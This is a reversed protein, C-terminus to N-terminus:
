PKPVGRMTKVDTPRELFQAESTIVQSIADRVRWHKFELSSRLLRPGVLAIMSGRVNSGSSEIELVGKLIRSFHEWFRPGRVETDGDYRYPPAGAFGTDCLILRLRVRPTALLALGFENFLRFLLSQASAGSFFVHKADNTSNVDGNWAHIETDNRRGVHVLNQLLRNILGRFAAVEAAYLDVDEGRRGTKAATSDQIDYWFLYSYDRRGSLGARRAIVQEGADLVAPIRAVIDDLLDRSYELARDFNPAPDTRELNTGIRGVSTPAELGCSEMALNFSQLKSFGKRAPASMIKTPKDVRVEAMAIEALMLAAAGEWILSGCADILPSVERREDVLSRSTAVSQWNSRWRNALMKAPIDGMASFRQAVDEVLMAHEGMKFAHYKMRGSNVAEYASSRVLLRARQRLRGAPGRISAVLLGRVNDRYEDHLIQLEAELAALADRPPEVSALLILERDTLAPTTGDARSLLGIMQGLEEAQQPADAVVFSGDVPAGLKFPGKLGRRQLVGRRQLYHVLWEESGSRRRPGTHIKPVAGKLDFQIEVVNSVSEEGHLVELFGRSAGFRILLVLLKELTLHPITEREAADLYGKVAYYALDIEGDTFKVDEGHRYARFVANGESCIIPVAIGHDNCVDLILSLIRAVDERPVRGLAHRTTLFLELARFTIGRNLRDDEAVLPAGSGDRAALRAPVERLDYMSVFLHGFDAVVDDAFSDSDSTTPSVSQVLDEPLQDDNVAVVLRSGAISRLQKSGDILEEAATLSKRIAVSNWPGYHHGAERDDVESRFQRGATATADGFFVLGLVASLWWQVFRLRARPTRLGHSSLEDSDSLDAIADTLRIVGQDSLPRLLTMPVVNMWVIGQQSSRVFIRVKEVDIANSLSSGLLSRYREQSSRTPFFTYVGVGAVRQHPSTLSVSDWTSSSLLNNLERSNSRETRYSPFDVNYARPAVSLARLAASCFARTARDSLDVSVQDPNFIRKDHWQTNRCFVRSQVTAVGANVLQSQTKDLTSGLFLTDDVLLVRHGKLHSLDSDLIRDSLIVSGVPRAGAKRMVDYLCYSKRAMFMVADADHDALDDYFRLLRDAIDSPFQSLITSRVSRRRVGIPM